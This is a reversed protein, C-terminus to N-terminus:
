RCPAPGSAVALQRQPHELEAGDVAVLLRAHHVAEGPHPAHGLVVGVDEGGLLLHAVLDLAQQAEHEVQQAVVPEVVEVELQRGLGLLLRDAGFLLPVLRGLRQADRGDLLTEVEDHVLAAAGEVPRLDRHLRAVGDAAVPLQRVM